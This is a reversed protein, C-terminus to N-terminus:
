KEGFVSMGQIGLFLDLIPDGAYGMARWAKRIKAGTDTFKQQYMRYMKAEESVPITLIKADMNKM